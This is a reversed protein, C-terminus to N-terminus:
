IIVTCSSIPFIKIYTKLTHSIIPTIPAQLFLALESLFERNQTIVPIKALDNLLKEFMMNYLM